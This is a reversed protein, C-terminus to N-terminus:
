AGEGALLQRVRCLDQWAKRKQTPSRLLYAPHYTVVVPLDAEPFRHARTRLRGIPEDSELLDQAAIRGVALIVRPRVLAIQRRLYPRCEASEEPRPDRNGPPRCKLINAIFVDDRGFGLSRLMEDLLKGARGVFPEGRRDEEAGPAEGIIMLDADPNGVGFVTQTRGEHLACRMCGSVRARLVEWGDASPDAPPGADARAARVADGAAVATQAAPEEGDPKQPAAAEDAPEEGRLMWVDIGLARLYALREGEGGTM